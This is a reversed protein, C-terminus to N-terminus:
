FKLLDEIPDKISSSPMIQVKAEWKLTSGGAFRGKGNIIETM